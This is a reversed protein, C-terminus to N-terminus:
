TDPYGFPESWQRAKAYCDAARTKEGAAEYAEALRYYQAGVRVGEAAATDLATEAEALAGRHLLLEALARHSRAFYDQAGLARLLDRV